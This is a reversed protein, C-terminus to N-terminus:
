PNILTESRRHLKKDGETAPGLQSIPAKQVWTGFYETAQDSLNLADMPKKFEYFYESFIKFEEVSEKVDMPRVSQSIKKLLTFPKSPSLLEKLKEHHAATLTKALKEVLSREFDNYANTIIISLASYSPVEIKNVWCFDIVSLFVRKPVIQHQIIWNIHAIIKERQPEDFPAWAELALIQKRHRSSLLREYSHFQSKNYGLSRAVYDIDYKRFQGATFFKGQSKFYGLQLVFGIKSGPNKLKTVVALEEKNLAFYLTREEFNFSPPADFRKQDATRLIIIRSM